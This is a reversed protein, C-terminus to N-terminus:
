KATKQLALLKELVPTAKEAMEKALIQKWDPGYKEHQIQCFNRIMAKVEPSPVARETM